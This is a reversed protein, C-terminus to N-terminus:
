LEIAEENKAVKKNTNKNELGALLAVVLIDCMILLMTERSTISPIFIKRIKAQLKENIAESM